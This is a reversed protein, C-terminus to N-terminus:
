IRSGVLRALNYQEAYVMASRITHGKGHHANIAKSLTVRGAFAQRKEATDTLDYAKMALQALEAKQYGALASGGIIFVLM